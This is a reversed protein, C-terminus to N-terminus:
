KSELAWTSRCRSLVRPPVAATPGGPGSDAPLCGPSRARAASAATGSAGGVTAAPGSSPGAAAGGRLAAWAPPLASSTSSGVRAHLVPRPATTAATGVGRGGSSRWSAALACARLASSSMEQGCVGCASTRSTKRLSSSSPGREVCTSREVSMPFVTFASRFLVRLPATRSCALARSHVQRSATLSEGAACPSSCGAGRRSASATGGPTSGSTQGCIGALQRAQASADRRGSTSSRLSGPASSCRLGRAGLRGGGESLPGSAAGRGRSQVSAGRGPASARAESRSTQTMQM